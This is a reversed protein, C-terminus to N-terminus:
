GYEAYLSTNFIGSTVNPDIKGADTFHQDAIVWWQYLKFYGNGKPQPWGGGALVPFSCFLLFLCSIFQRKM